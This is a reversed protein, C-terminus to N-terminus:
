GEARAFACVRGVKAPAFRELDGIIREAPEAGAHPTAVGVSTIAEAALDLRAADPGIAVVGIARVCREAAILL